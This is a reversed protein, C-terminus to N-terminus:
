DSNFVGNEQICSFLLNLAHTEDEFSSYIEDFFSLCDFELFDAATESHIFDSFLHLKFSLFNFDSCLLSFENLNHSSILVDHSM